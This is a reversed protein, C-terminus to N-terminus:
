SCTHACRREDQRVASLRARVKVVVSVVLVLMVVVAPAGTCCLCIPAAKTVHYIFFKSKWRVAEMAAWYPGPGPWAIDERGKPALRAGIEVLRVALGGRRQAKCIGLVRNAMDRRLKKTRRDSWAKPTCALRANMLHSSVSHLTKLTTIGFTPASLVVLLAKFTAGGDLLCINGGYLQPASSRGPVGPRSQEANRHRHRHSYRPRYHHIM